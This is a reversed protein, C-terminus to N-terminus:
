DEHFTNIKYKLIKALKVQTMDSILAKSRAQCSLLASFNSCRFTGSAVSTTFIVSTLCKGPINQSTVNM